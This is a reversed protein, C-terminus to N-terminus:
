AHIFGSRCSLVCRLASVRALLVRVVGAHGRSAATLLPTRGELDPSHIDAGYLILREM